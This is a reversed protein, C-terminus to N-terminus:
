VGIYNYYPTWYDTGNVNIRVMGVFSYNSFSDTNISKTGDASSTGVYDVFQEDIDQQNLRLVAIADTSGTQAHVKAAPAIATSAFAFRDARLNLEGQGVVINADDQDHEIRIFDNAQTSDSSYVYLNPNSHLTAPSRNANGLHSAHIVALACANSASPTLGCQLTDNGTTTFRFRHQQSGGFSFNVDNNVVLPSDFRINTTSETGTAGNRALLVVGNTTWTNFDIRLSGLTSGNSGFFDIKNDVSNSIYEGNALTINSSFTKAGTFTQTGALSALTGTVAPLTVTVTSGSGNLTTRNAAVGLGISGNGNTTISGGGDSVDIYGASAAGADLKLYGATQGNPNAASIYGDQATPVTTSATFSIRKTPHIYIPAEARIYSSIGSEAITFVETNQANNLVKLAVGPFDGSTPVVITMVTGEAESSTFVNRASANSALLAYQTHDDNALGALSSHQIEVVEDSTAITTLFPM